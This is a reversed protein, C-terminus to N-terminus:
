SLSITILSRWLQMCGLTAVENLVFVGEKHIIQTYSYGIPKSCKWDACYFTLANAIELQVV